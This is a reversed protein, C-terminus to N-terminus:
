SGVIRGGVAIGIVVLLLPVLIAAATASLAYADHSPRRRSM